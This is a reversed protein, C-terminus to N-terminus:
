VKVASDEEDESLGPEFTRGSLLYELTRTTLGLQAEYKRLENKNIM